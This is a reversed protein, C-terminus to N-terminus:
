RKGKGGDGEQIGIRTSNWSYIYFTTCRSVASNANWANTLLNGAVLATGGPRIWARATVM